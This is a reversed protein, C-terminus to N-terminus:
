DLDPVPGHTFLIEPEGFEGRDPRVTRKWAIAAVHTAAALKAAAVARREDPMERAEFAPNMEGEDNKDFAWMVILASPPAKSEPLIGNSSGAQRGARALRAVQSNVRSGGFGVM